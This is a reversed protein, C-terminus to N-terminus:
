ENTDSFDAPIDATWMQEGEYYTVTFIHQKKEPFETFMFITPFRGADCAILFLDEDDLDELMKTLPSCSKFEPVPNVYFYDHFLGSNPNGVDKRAKVSPWATWTFMMIKSALSEGAPIENFDESSIVTIKNFMNSLYSPPADADHDLYRGESEGTSERFRRDESETLVTKDYDLMLVYRQEKLFRLANPELAFGSKYPKINNLRSYWGPVRNYIGSWGDEGNQQTVSNKNDQQTAVQPICAFVTLLALAIAIHKM